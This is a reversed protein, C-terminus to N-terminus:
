NLQKVWAPFFLSVLGLLAVRRRDISRVNRVIELAKSALTVIDVIASSSLVYRSFFFGAPLLCSQRVISLWVGSLVSRADLLHLRHVHLLLQAPNLFLVAM